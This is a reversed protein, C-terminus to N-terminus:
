RQSIFKIIYKDVQKDWDDNKLIGNFPDQLMLPKYNEDNMESRNVLYLWYEQKKRKAVTYENRSWYFYPKPGDYSKVEIFRNYRVDNMENYSAIDYGENVIYEAIWEVPKGGLRKKEFALVFKEAEEGYIQQLEMARKFEEIGIKRKKIEPLITKDFLKKHRGNIIYCNIHVSPHAKIAGFDILLQKFNSFKLGFASNSIQLSKYIIDYTLNESSFINLFDEDEVLSIFLYQVFKDKMQNVSNLSDSFDNNVTYYDGNKTLVNIRVALDICGDFIHNDDIIRNYFLSDLDNLSWNSNESDNVSKLLQFFYNPTGLNHYQRLDNLM